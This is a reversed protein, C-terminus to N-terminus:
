GHFDPELVNAIFHLSPHPAAITQILQVGRKRNNGKNQQQKGMYGAQHMKVDKGQGSKYLGHHPAIGFLKVFAPRLPGCIREKGATYLTPKDQLLASYGVALGIAIVATRLAFNYGTYRRALASYADGTGM